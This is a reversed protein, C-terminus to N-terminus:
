AVDIKGFISVLPLFLSLDGLTEEGLNKMMCDRSLFFRYLHIEICSRGGCLRGACM